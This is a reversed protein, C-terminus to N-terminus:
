VSIRLCTLTISIPSLAARKRRNDRSVAFLFVVLCLAHVRIGYILNLRNRFYSKDNNLMKEYEINIDINVDFLIFNFFFLFNWYVTSFFHCFMFLLYFNREISIKKVWWLTTANCRPRRRPSNRWSWNLVPCFLCSFACTLLVNTFAPSCVFAKPCTKFYYLSRYKYFCNNWDYRCFLEDTFSLYYSILFCQWIPKCKNLLIMSALRSRRNDLKTVPLFCSRHSFCTRLM